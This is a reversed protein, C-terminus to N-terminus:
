PARPDSLRSQVFLADGDTEGELAFGAKELLPVAGAREAQSLEIQIVGTNERLFRSMGQLAAVAAGEVDIKMFYRRGRVACLDDLRAMDVTESVRFVSTDRTASELDLRSIGTSRPDIHITASAPEAGLAVRHAEAKATLDNLFLNAMLQAHNRRVPEFAIINKIADHAGLLVSYVGINAGVDILLDLRLNDILRRANAIQANEFPAGALLRNDIWNKPELLWLAGRRRAVVADTKLRWARKALSHFPNKM